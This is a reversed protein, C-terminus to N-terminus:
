IVTWHGVAKMSEHVGDDVVVVVVVVVVVAVMAMVTVM